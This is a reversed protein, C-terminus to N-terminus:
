ATVTELRKKHCGSTKIRIKQHNLKLDIAEIKHIKDVM